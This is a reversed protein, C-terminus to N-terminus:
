RVAPLIRFREHCATCNARMAEMPGALDTFGAELAAERLDLANRELDEALRVFEARYEPPLEVDVEDACGVAGCAIAIILGWRVRPAYRRAEM